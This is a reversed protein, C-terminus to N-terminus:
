NHKFIQIKKLIEQLCKDELVVEKMFIDCTNENKFYQKMNLKWLLNDNLSFCFCFMHSFFTFKKLVFFPSCIKVFHMTIFHKKFSFFLFYFVNSKKKILTTLHQINWSSYKCLVITHSPSYRAGCCVFIVIVFFPLSRHYGSIVFCCWSCILAFLLLLLLLHHFLMLFLCHDILVLLLQHNIIITIVLTLSSSVVGVTPSPSFCYCLVKSVCM